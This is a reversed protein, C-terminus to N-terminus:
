ICNGVKSVGPFKVIMAEVVSPYIIITGRSIEDSQRGLVKIYGDPYLSGGDGTHIWGDQSIQMGKSEEQLYGKFAFPSRLAIEGSQGMPVVKKNRDM